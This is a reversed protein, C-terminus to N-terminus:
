QRGMGHGYGRREKEINYLIQFWTALVKKKEKAISYQLVSINGDCDPEIGFNGLAFVSADSLNGFVASVIAKDAGNRIIEKYTREGVVANISDIVISKGAGTEGTLVNFGETPEINASEIIAINEIHLYKLM